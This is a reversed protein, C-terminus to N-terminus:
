AVENGADGHDRRSVIGTSRKTERGVGKCGQREIRREDQNADILSRLTIRAENLGIYKCNVKEMFILFLYRAAEGGLAGILKGAQLPM